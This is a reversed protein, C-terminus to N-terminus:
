KKKGHKSKGGKKKQNRQAIKMKWYAQKDM